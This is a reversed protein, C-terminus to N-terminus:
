APERAERVMRMSCSSYRLALLRSPLSVPLSLSSIGGSTLKVM